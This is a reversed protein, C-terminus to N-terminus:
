ATATRTGSGSCRRYRVAWGLWMPTSMSVRSKMEAHATDIEDTSPTVGTEKAGAEKGPPPPALAIGATGEPPYVEVRRYNDGFPIDTRKEFGISEYFGISRDQDSVPLGVLCLDRIRTATASM